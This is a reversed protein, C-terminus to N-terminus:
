RVRAASICHERGLRWLCLWHPGGPPVHRHDDRHGGRRAAVPSIRTTERLQSALLFGSVLQRRFALSTISSAGSLHRTCPGPAGPLALSAMRSSDASAQWATRETQCRSAFNVYNGDATFGTPDCFGVPAQVGLENIVALLPSATYLACAGCASGTLGDQLFVGVIAMIALRGNALGASVNKTKVSPDSSALVKFGFDDAAAKTGASQDQSLECFGGYALIQGCGGAPVKSIAALGNPIDGFKLGASPSLFGLLKRIIDPNIYGMTGLMSVHGHKGSRRDAAPSIRTTEMLRSALLIM